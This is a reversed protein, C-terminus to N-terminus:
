KGENEDWIVKGFFKVPVRHKPKRVEWMFGTKMWQDPLEVQYGNEEGREIWANRYAENLNTDSIIFFSCIKRM